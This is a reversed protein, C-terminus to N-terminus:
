TDTEENNEEKEHKWPRGKNIEMKRRVAADIDIGLHGCALLTMIIVDALEEAFHDQAGSRHAEWDIAADRAEDTESKIMSVLSVAAREIEPVDKELAYLGHAAADEYIADRLTNLSACKELHEIYAMAEGAMTMMCFVNNKYPCDGHDGHCEDSSCSKLGEKINKIEEPTKM